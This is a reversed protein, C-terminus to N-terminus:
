YVTCTFASFMLVLIHMTTTSYPFCYFHPPSPPFVISIQDHCHHHHLFISVICIHNHLSHHHNEHHFSFSFVFTFRSLQITSFFLSEPLNLIRNTILFLQNTKSSMLICFKSALFWLVKVPFFNNPLPLLLFYFQISVWHNWTLPSSASIVKVAHILLHSLCKKSQHGLM